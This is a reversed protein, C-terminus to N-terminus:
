RESKVNKKTHCTDSRLFEEIAATERLAVKHMTNVAFFQNMLLSPRDAYSLTKRWRLDWDNESSLMRKWRLESNSEFSMCPQEFVPQLVMLMGTLRTTEGRYPCPLQCLHAPMKKVQTQVKTSAAVQREVHILIKDM